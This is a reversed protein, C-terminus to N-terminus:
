WFGNGFWFLYEFICMGYSESRLAYSFLCCLVHQVCRETLFIECYEVSETPRDTSSHALCERIWECVLWVKSRFSLAFVLLWRYTYLIICQNHVVISFSGMYVYVIAMCYIERDKKPQTHHETYILSFTSVCAFTVRVSMCSSDSSQSVELRAPMWIYGCKNVSSPSLEKIRSYVNIAQQFHQFHPRHFRLISNRSKGSSAAQDTRNKEFLSVSQVNSEICKM